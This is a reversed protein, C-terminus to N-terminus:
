RNGPRLLAGAIGKWPRLDWPRRRWANLYDKVASWRDGAEREKWAAAMYFDALSRDLARAEERSLTFADKLSLRLRLRRIGAERRSSINGAHIRRRHLPKDIFGLDHGRSVKLFFSFDDSNKLNEDFGGVAEWLSRHLVVGSMGIFNDELLALFADRAKLRFWGPALAEKPMAKFLPHDDLFARESGDERFNMFDSFVFGIDPHERMLRISELIKGHTLLDDADLFNLYEGRSIRAGANRPLSPGGSNKELRLSRIKDGCRAIVAATDDSSADDVVVVEKEAYPLSLVSDLCEGLFRGNNYAPIVISVLPAPM